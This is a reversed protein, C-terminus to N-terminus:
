NLIDAQRERNANLRQGKVSDGAPLAGMFYFSM